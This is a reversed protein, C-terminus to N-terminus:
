LAGDRAVIRRMTEIIIYLDQKWCRTRVYQVDYANTQRFTIRNRGSIQALGTLGPKVSFKILEEPRYYRLMEPIEARPGVITVEGKLLNIFNPIEDLTTKRLWRGVPTVRPDNEVKFYLSEIQEPTYAYSYLEPWRAKADSYLTRFKCFKFCVGHRGMRTQWFLAPGPSDRRILWAVWLTVPLTLVLMTAALVIEFIRYLFLGIKHLFGPKSAPASTKASSGNLRGTTEEVELLRPVPDLQKKPAPAM